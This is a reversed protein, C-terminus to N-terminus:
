QNCRIFIHNVLVKVREFCISVRKISFASVSMTLMTMVKQIQFSTKASVIPMDAFIFFTAVRTTLSSRQLVM